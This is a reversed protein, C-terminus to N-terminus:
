DARELKSQGEPLGSPALWYHVLDARRTWAGQAFCRSWIHWDQAILHVRRSWLQGVFRRAADRWELKKGYRSAETIWINKWMVREWKGTVGMGNKKWLWLRDVAAFNMACHLFTSVAIWQGEKMLGNENSKRALSHLVRDRPQSASEPNARM